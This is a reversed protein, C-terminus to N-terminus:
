EVPIAETQVHHQSPVNELMDAEVDQWGQWGPDHASCRAVTQRWHAAPKNEAFAPEHDQSVHSLPLM